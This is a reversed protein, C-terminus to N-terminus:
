NNEEDSEENEAWVGINKNENANDVELLDKFYDPIKKKRDLKALALKLIDHHYSQTNKCDKTRYILLGSKEKTEANYNYCLKADLQLDLNVFDPFKELSKKMSNQSFKLYALECLVAQPEYQAISGDLKILDTGSVTDITGYDIFEVEYKDDKFVGTIISRYYNGDVSYKAACLLGKKIPAELKIGSKKGSTYSALTNEITNLNKNPLVNVYFNNFDIYDTVRIKVDTHKETFKNPLNVSDIDKLLNVLSDFSWINKKETEAIKEAKKYDNMAPIAVGSINNIVALGESLLNFAFNKGKVNLFGFYNGVRDAQIIDCTAERQLITSNVYDLAQNFLKDYLETNNKDKSFSKVGLLSFPIMCNNGDIRLKFKTGSFCYEVVCPLNKKGVLFKTFDKKKQKNASILDSFNFMGPSKTSNLGTKKDKSHKDAASYLDLYKSIDDDARPNVFTALGNELIEVNLNRDFNTADTESDKAAVHRLVTYFNMKKGDKPLVRSYDFECRITKGILAKRVFERSQWAWPQDSEESLPKALAPAKMHSLFIRVVEGTNKNRVSLSDGSHVQYCVAEFTMDTKNLNKEKLKEADNCEEELDEKEFRWVRLKEKRAQSQAEKLANLEDIKYTQNPAIFLKSYGNKLVSVALSGKKDFVDAVFNKDSHSYVVVKVDRHLALREIYAKGAKYVAEDKSSPIAVFRLSVKLYTSIENIYVVYCSSNIVYDVIADVEKEKLKQFISDSDFDLDNSSYVKRKHQAIVDIDNTWINLSAKKAETEAAQLKAYFDGKTSAENHKGIFGIKAFGNKVVDININKGDLFIQGFTKDNNKYEITYKVVKGLIQNRLFDRSDWGFPEEETNNSSAVRPAQILSLYLNKEEPLENSNKKIRGSLVVYDGSFVGKVLGEQLKEM